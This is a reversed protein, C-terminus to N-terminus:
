GKIKEKKMLELIGLRVLLSMSFHRTKKANLHTKLKTIMSHTNYTIGVMKYDM